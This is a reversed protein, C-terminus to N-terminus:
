PAPWETVTLDFQLENMDLLGAKSVVKFKGPHLNVFLEGKAGANIDYLLSADVGDGTVKFGRQQGSNNAVKMLTPGPPINSPMDIKKDSIVVSVVTGDATRTVTSQQIAAPKSSACGVSMMSVGVIAAVGRFRAPISLRIRM